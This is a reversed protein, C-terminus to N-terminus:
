GRLLLRRSAPPTRVGQRLNPVALDHRDQLRSRANPSNRHEVLYPPAMRLDAGANPARQFPAHAAPSGQGAGRLIHDETLLVFGAPTPQGVEGVGANGADGAGADHPPM